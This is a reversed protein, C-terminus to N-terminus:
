SLSARMGLNRDIETSIQKIVVAKALPRASREKGVVALPTSPGARQLKPEKGESMWFRRL